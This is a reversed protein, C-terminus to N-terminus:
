RSSVGTTTRASQQAGPPLALPFHNAQYCWLPDWNVSKNCLLTDGGKAKWAISKAFKSDKAETASATQAEHSASLSAQFYPSSFSLSASAKMASAREAQTTKGFTSSDESSFLTGGLQVRTAFFHGLFDTSM